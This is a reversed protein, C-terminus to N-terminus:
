SVIWGIIVNILNNNYLWGAVFSNNLYVTISDIPILALVSLVASVALLGEVLGVFAGLLTNAASLLSIKAALMKLMKKLLFMLFRAIFFLIVFAILTILYRSLTQGVLAALTTGPAITSDGFTDVIQTALFKPLNKEILLEELAASSVDIGFGEIKLMAKEFSGAFVDQLGFLGGTIEIFLKTFLVAAAFAAIVSVFGFFCEIFGKKACILSFVVLAIVVLVDVLYNTWSRACIMNLLM